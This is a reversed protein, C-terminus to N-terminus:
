NANLLTCGAGLAVLCWNICVDYIRKERARLWQARAEEAAKKISLLASV